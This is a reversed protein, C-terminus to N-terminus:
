PPSWDEEFLGVPSSLVAEYAAVKRERATSYAADANVIAEPDGSDKAPGLEEGDGLDVGAEGSRREDNVVAVEEWM